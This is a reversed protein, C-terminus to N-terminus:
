KMDWFSGCVNNEVFLDWLRSVQFLLILPLAVCFLCIEKMGFYASKKGKRNMAM